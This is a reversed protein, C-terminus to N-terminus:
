AAGNAHLTPLAQFCYESMKKLEDYLRAYNGHFAMCQSHAFVDAVNEPTENLFLYRVWDKCEQKKNYSTFILNDKFPTVEFYIDSKLCLTHQEYIKKAEETLCWHNFKYRLLPTKTAFTKAVVSIIHQPLPNGNISQHQFIHLVLEKARTMSTNYLKLQHFWKFELEKQLPLLIIKRASESNWALQNQFAPNPTIFDHLSKYLAFDVLKKFKVASPSAYYIKSLSSPTTTTASKRKAM